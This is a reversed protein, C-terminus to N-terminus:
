QIPVLEQDELKQHYLKAFTQQIASLWVMDPESYTSEPMGSVDVDGLNYLEEVVQHPGIEGNECRQALERVANKDEESWDEYLGDVAIHQRLVDASYQSEWQKDLFKEALYAYDLRGAFWDIGYGPWSTVGGAGSGPSLDGTVVIGEPTFVILTSMMRGQNPERLYYMEVNPTREVVELYHNELRQVNDKIEKEIEHHFMANAEVIKGLINKIARYQTATL